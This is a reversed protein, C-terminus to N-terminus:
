LSKIIDVVKLSKENEEYIKKGVKNFKPQIQSIIIDEIFKSINVKEGNDKTAYPNYSIWLSYQEPRKIFDDKLDNKEEVGHWVYYINGQKRFWRNLLTSSYYGAYVIEDNKFLLYASQEAKLFKEDILKIALTYNEVENGQFKAKIPVDANYFNGIKVFDYGCVEKKYVIKNKL